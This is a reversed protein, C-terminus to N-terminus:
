NRYYPYEYYGFQKEERNGNDTKKWVMSRTFTNGQGKM